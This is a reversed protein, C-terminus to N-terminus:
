RVKVINTVVTERHCLKIDHRGVVRLCLFLFEVVKYTVTYVLLYAGLGRTM